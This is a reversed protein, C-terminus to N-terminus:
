PGGAKVLLQGKEVLDGKEVGIWEVRGIVKSGLSIRHHAVVYGSAVLVDRSDSETPPPAPRAAEVNDEAAVAPSVSVAPWFTYGALGILLVLLILIIWTSGRGSDAPSRKEKDIRLSKLDERM